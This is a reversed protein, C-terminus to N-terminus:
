GGCEGIFIRSQLAAQEEFLEAGGVIRLGAGKAWAIFATDDRNVWEVAWRLTPLVAELIEPFPLPDGGGMGLSTAQIVGIPALAAIEQAALPNQRSHMFGQGRKAAVGMSAKAVGGSGLILMPGKPLKELFM